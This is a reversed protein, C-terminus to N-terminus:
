GDKQKSDKKLLYFNFAMMAPFVVVIAAWAGSIICAGCVLLNMLQLLGTYSVKGWDLEFKDKAGDKLEVLRKNRDLYKDVLASTQIDQKIHYLKMATQREYEEVREAHASYLALEADIDKPKVFCSSSIIRENKDPVDLKILLKPKDGIETPRNTVAREWIIGDPTQERAKRATEDNLFRPEELQM